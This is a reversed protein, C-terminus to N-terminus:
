RRSRSIWTGCRCLSPSCATARSTRSTSRFDNYTQLVAHRQAEDEIAMIHNSAFGIGNPYLIQAYIGMADILELRAPVDWAAEDLEDFPQIGIRGREKQHGKRITNGGTGAWLLDNLYWGTVGDVTRM